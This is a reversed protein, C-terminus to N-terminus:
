PQPVPQGWLFILVSAATGAVYVAGGLMLGTVNKPKEFLALILLILGVAVELGAVASFIAVYREQPSSARVGMYAVFLTTLLLLANVLFVAAMPSSQTDGAALRQAWQSTKPVHAPLEGGRGESSLIFYLGIGMSWVACVLMAVDFPYNAGLMRFPVGSNYPKSGEGAVWAGWIAFQYIFFVSTLVFLSGIARRM